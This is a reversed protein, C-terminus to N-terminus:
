KSIHQKIEMHKHKKCNNKTKQKKKEKYNIGLRMASHDSFISSIIETKRFKSLNSKHGLVHDIRSFTAHVSSFFTYKRANPHSTRNIDILDIEDLIDNFVQKEKNIKQKPSRDIPTFPTNFNGLIITNSGMEEKINTLTQRTYQPAGINPAYINVMTVDEEQVSGKIM